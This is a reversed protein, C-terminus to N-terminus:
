LLDIEALRSREAIMKFRTERSSLDLIETVVGSIPERHKTSSMIANTNPNTNSLDKTENYIEGARIEPLSDLWMEITIYDDEDIPLIDEFWVEFEETPVERGSVRVCNGGWTEANLMAQDAEDIVENEDDGDDPLHAIGISATIEVGNPELEALQERFEEMLEEAEDEDYDPLKILFEDGQGYERSFEGRGDVFEEGFDAIQELVEDGFSHGHENNIESFGDLDIFAYAIEDEEVSSIESM